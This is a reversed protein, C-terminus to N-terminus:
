HAGYHDGIYQGKYAAWPNPHEFRRLVWLVISGAASSAIGLCEQINSYSVQNAM